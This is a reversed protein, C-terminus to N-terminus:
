KSDVYNENENESSNINLNTKEGLILDCYRSGPDLAFSNYNTDDKLPLIKKLDECRYTSKLKSFITNYLNIMNIAKPKLSQKPFPDFMKNEEIKKLIYGFDQASLMACNAGTGLPWFPSKAADGVVTFYTLSVHDESVKNEVVRIASNAYTSTSFDFVAIDEKEELSTQIM